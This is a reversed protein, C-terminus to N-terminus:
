AEVNDLSLQGAVCLPEGFHVGPSLDLSSLLFQACEREPTCALSGLPVLDEVDVDLVNAIIHLYNYEIFVCHATLLYSRACDFDWSKADISTDIFPKRDVVLALLRTLDTKLTDPRRFIAHYSGQALVNLVHGLLSDVSYHRLLLGIHHRLLLWHHHLLGHRLLLGHHILRHHALRWHDLLRLHHHTLLLRRHHLLRHHLLRRHHILLWGLLHLRLKIRVWIDADVDVDVNILSLLLM